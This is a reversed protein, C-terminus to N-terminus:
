REIKNGTDQQDRISGGGGKTRKMVKYTIFAAFAAIVVIVAFTEM